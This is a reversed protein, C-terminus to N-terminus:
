LLFSIIRIERESSMFSSRLMCFYSYMTFNVDNDEYMICIINIM